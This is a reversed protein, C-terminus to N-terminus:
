EKVWKISGSAYLLCPTEDLAQIKRKDQTYYAFRLAHLIYEQLRADYCKTYLAIM